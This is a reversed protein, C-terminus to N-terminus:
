IQIGDILNSVKTLNFFALSPYKDKLQQLLNQQMKEVPNNDCTFDSLLPLSGMNVLSTVKNNSIFLKQLSSLKGIDKVETISNKRINLEHLGKM